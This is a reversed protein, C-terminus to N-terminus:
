PAGMGRERKELVDTIMNLRISGKEKKDSKKGEHNERYPPVSSARANGLAKKGAKEKNTWDLLFQSRQGTKGKRRQSSVGKKKEAILWLYLPAHLRIEEKRESM